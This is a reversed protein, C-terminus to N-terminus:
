LFHLVAGMLGAGRESRFALRLFGNSLVMVRTGPTVAVEAKSRSSYLRHNRPRRRFVRRYRRRCFSTM